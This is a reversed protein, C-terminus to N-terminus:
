SGNKKNTEKPENLDKEPTQKGKGKTTKPIKGPKTPKLTTEAAGDVDIIGTEPTGNRPTSIPTLQILVPHLLRSNAELVDARDIIDEYQPGAGSGRLYQALAATLITVAELRGPLSATSNPITVGFFEALAALIFHSTQFSDLGFLMTLLKSATRKEDDSLPMDKTEDPPTPRAKTKKPPSAEPPPPKPKKIPSDEFVKMKHDRITTQATQAKYVKTDEPNMQPLQIYPNRCVPGTHNFVQTGYERLNDELGEYRSFATDRDVQYTFTVNAARKSTAPNDYVKYVVGKAIHVPLVIPRGPNFESSAMPTDRRICTRNPESYRDRSRSPERDTSPSRNTRQAKKERVLQRLLDRTTPSASPSRSRGGRDKISSARPPSTSRSRTRKHSSPPARSIDRRDDKRNDRRDDGRDDRDRREDRRDDSRRNDRGSHNNNYNSITQM